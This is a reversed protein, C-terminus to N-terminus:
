NAIITVLPQTNSSHRNKKLVGNTLALTDNNLETQNLEAIYHWIVLFVYSGLITSISFSFQFSVEISQM